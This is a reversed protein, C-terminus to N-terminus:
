PYKSIKVGIERVLIRLAYAIVSNADRLQKHLLQRPVRFCELPDKTGAPM